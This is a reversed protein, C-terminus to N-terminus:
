FLTMVSGAAPLHTASAIVPEMAFVFGRVVVVLALAFLAAYFGNSVATEFKM